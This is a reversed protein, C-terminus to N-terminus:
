IFGNDIVLPLLSEFVMPELVDESLKCSQVTDEEPDGVFFSVRDYIVNDCKASVVVYHPKVAIVDCECERIQPGIASSLSCISM